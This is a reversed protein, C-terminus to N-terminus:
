GCGRRIDIDAVILILAWLVGLTIALPWGSVFRGYTGFFLGGFLGLLAVLENPM